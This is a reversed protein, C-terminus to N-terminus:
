LLPVVGNDGLSGLLLLMGGRAILFGLGLVRSIVNEGNRAFRFALYAIAANILIALVSM